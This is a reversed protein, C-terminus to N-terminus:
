RAGGRAALASQLWRIPWPRRRAREFRALRDRYKRKARAMWFKKWAWRLALFSSTYVLAKKARGARAPAPIIPLHVPEHHGTGGAKAGKADKGGGPQGAGEPTAAPEGAHTDDYEAKAKAKTLDATGREVNLTEFDVVSNIEAGILLVVANIYFFLLLIIAGGLAGYTANFNGFNQVYYAFGFGLIIWTAVTFVAGPTVAQWKAKICPGFFYIMSVILFLLGLAVAYRVINILIKGVLGLHGQKALYEIIGTGIPLLLMVTLILIATGVTLGMAVARQKVFGRTCQVYYAKDLASMTMVMGGSAGWLALILGLSLLGGKQNTMVDKVSTYIQDATDKGMSSYTVNAIESLIREQVGGPLYPALTLVFVLFPFIAFIWAYALASGWTFVDDKSIETWVKKAFPMFGLSKVVKPVDTVRAM